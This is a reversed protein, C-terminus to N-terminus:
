CDFRGSSGFISLLGMGPLLAELRGFKVLVFQYHRNGDNVATSLLSYRAAIDISLAENFSWFNGEDKDWTDGPFIM